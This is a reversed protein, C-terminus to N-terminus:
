RMRTSRPSSSSWKSLSSSAYGGADPVERLGRSSWRSGRDATARSAPAHRRRAPPRSAYAQRSPLPRTHQGSRPSRLGSQPKGARPRRSKRGHGATVRAAASRECGAVACRLLGAPAAYGSSGTGIGSGMPWLAAAGSRRGGGRFSRIGGLPSRVSDSPVPHVADRLCRLLASSRPFSLCCGRCRFPVVARRPRGRCPLYTPSGPRHTALCSGRASPPTDPMCRFLLVATVSVRTEVTTSCTGRWRNMGSRIQSPVSGTSRVWVGSRHHCSTSASVATTVWISSPRTPPIPTGVEEDLAGLTTAAM